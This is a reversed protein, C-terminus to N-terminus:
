GPVQGSPSLTLISHRSVEKRAENFSHDVHLLKRFFVFLM